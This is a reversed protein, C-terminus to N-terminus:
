IGFASRMRPASIADASATAPLSILLGGAAGAFAALLGVSRRMPSRM